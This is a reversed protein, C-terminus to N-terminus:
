APEESASKRRKEEVRFTSSILEESIDTVVIQVQERQNM